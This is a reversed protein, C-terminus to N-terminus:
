PAWAQRAPPCPPPPPTRKWAGSFGEAPPLLLRWRSPHNLLARCTPCRSRDHRMWRALCCRHFAHRCPLLLVGDQCSDISGACSPRPAVLLGVPAEALHDLCIVCTSDSAPLAEELEEKLRVVPVKALLRAVIDATSTAVVSVREVTHGRGNFSCAFIIGVNVAGTYIFALMSVGILSTPESAQDLAVL